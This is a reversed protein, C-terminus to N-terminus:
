GTNTFYFSAFLANYHQVHSSAIYKKNILHNKQVLNNTCRMEKLYVVFLCVLYYKTFHYNEKFSLIYFRFLFDEFVSVLFFSYFQFLSYQKNIYYATKVYFINTLVQTAKKQKLLIISCTQSNIVIGHLQLHLRVIYM